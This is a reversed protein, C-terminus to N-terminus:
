PSRPRVAGKLTIVVEEDLLRQLALAQEREAVYDTPALRECTMAARQEVKLHGDKATVTREFDVCRSTLKATTPQHQLVAGEPLTFDMSWKLTRPSGLLLAHRRTSLAFLGAVGWGTPLKMRLTEGEKRGLTPLDVGFEVVAPVRLDTVEVARADHTHAGALTAGLQQQVMQALQEGNRGAKRLSAGVRGRASMRMLGKGSGDASLTLTSTVVSEDKGPDQFPIERFTHGAASPEFPNMVMSWTGQDDHRLIDPDLLEVTPDFFRGEEVGSQKPVYVIAHNFQQMPVGRVVPGADRTRVLAFHAEIGAIRALTIFLVAKDKCDGYRRAVVVPAAHPKVGAIFREYDQQYRIENSTWDQLRSLKEEVTTAGAFLRDALARVEPSERFADKLLSAEWQVFVDWSPVTSVVLNPAVEALTPMMPEAVVPETDVASWVVRTLGGIETATREFTGFHEELLRTGTAAYFVWRSLKTQSQPASFWWQRALHGDLYGDPASDIRYQLVVTTGVSLQRFRVSSGRITSAETRRGEPDVAYASLVRSRGDGRMSLRTLRDRGADNLAHAVTTVFNVTSGDSRLMTVEDDLLYLIDASPHAPTKLRAEVIARIAAEDPVDALYPGQASPSLFDLRHALKEDDPDRELAARWAEIAQDGRGTQYYLEALRRHGTPATPALEILAGAAVEAEATNGKRRLTETLREWSARLHPWHKVMRRAYGEATTFDDNGQAQWHLRQLLTIDNQLEALLGRYLEASRPFFRLQEYCEGLGMLVEPWRPWRADAAALVACRDEHWGEAEYSDALRLYALPRDPLSVRLEGYTKRAAEALNQQGLFRAEQLRYYPFSQGHEKSLAGLLDGAAGREQNDWAAGALQYRAILSLPAGLVAAESRTVNLLRLGMFEAWDAELVARRASGVPLSAVRADLLTEADSTQLSAQGVAVPAGLPLHTVSGPPVLSGDAETLRGAFVWVDDQHASKVVLRHPGAALTLPVIFGDNLVGNVSGASFVLLDDLWVKFPDSTSVRFAYAGPRSVEFQAALYAVQWATPHLEGALDHRGRPDPHKAKRWGVDVLKGRYIAKPEVAREPPYEVDWGKGQDNDFTGIVSFDLAFGALSIARDRAAFDGRQHHLESLTLAALRRAGQSPHRSVITELLGAVLAQEELTYSLEDLRHLHLEAQADRPDRLAHVLADFQGRPGFRRDELTALELVLEWTRADEPAAALAEDVAGRLAEATTGVYFREVAGVLRTEATATLTSGPLLAVEIRSATGGCGGLGGSAFLLLSLALLRPCTM